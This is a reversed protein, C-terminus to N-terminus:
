ESEGWFKDLIAQGKEAAEDLAEQPTKVGYMVEEVAQNLVDNIESQVPTIPVSVDSNMSALVVDWYPNADYYAPDGNCEKVPSPRGQELLFYCGGDKQTGLYELFKYAADQVAPDANKPIVYGWSFSLGTVGHSEADPNEGNHPRLAVGWMETDNWMEPDWEKLHGFGSVNTFWTATKDTYFPFDASTDSTGQWFDTINEIGGNIENTFTLMWELAEVGEPSNFLLQKGDDSVFKGNNTVLWQVFDPGLQIGAQAVDAGMIDIGTDSLVTMARSADELEQWTQPPSEPDLEAERFMEKNYLYQGSNGGATPLPFSYLEGNWRQNNIEGEYFIKDVNLGAAEVYPTIPIILGENAFKYTEARTTMILGPPSSSAIATSVLESRGDWPQVLNVVKIDPNEKEFNAIVQDMLPEREGGWWNMFEVTVVGSEADEAGTNPVPQAVCGTSILGLLMVLGITLWHRKSM